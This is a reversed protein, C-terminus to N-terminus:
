EGKLSDVPNTRAAKISEYAITLIAISISIIGALVFSMLNIDIHYAFRELWKSLTYYGIPAAIVFSILVLKIFDKSLMKTVQTVSAGLAKRIGIEKTRDKVVILMINSVGIVGAIISGVGVIWIFFRGYFYNSRGFINKKM